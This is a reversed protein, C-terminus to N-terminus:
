TNIDFYRITSVSFSYKKLSIHAFYIRVKSYVSKESLKLIFNFIGELVMLYMNQTNCYM